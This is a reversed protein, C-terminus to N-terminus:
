EDITNLPTSGPSPVATYKCNLKQLREVIVEPKNFFTDTPEHTACCVIGEGDLISNLESEEIPGMASVQVAQYGIERVKKMAAAIDQPTKIFDRLTYLQVAVQSIQM